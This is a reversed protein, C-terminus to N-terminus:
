AAGSVAINLDQTVIRRLFYMYSSQQITGDWRECLLRTSTAGDGVYIYRSCIM